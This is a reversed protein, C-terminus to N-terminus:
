SGRGAARRQRAPGGPQVFGVPSQGYSREDSGEDLRARPDRGGPAVPLRRVWFILDLEGLPVSLRTQYLLTGKLESASSLYSKAGVGGYTALIDGRYAAILDSTRALVTQRFAADIVGDLFPRAKILAGQIYRQGDRWVKRFLVFHGDELLSIEFPDIESEFTRIRVESRFALSALDSRIRTAVKRAYAADEVLPNSSSLDLGIIIRRPAGEDIPGPKARQVGSTSKTATMEEAEGGNMAVTMGDGQMLQSIKKDGELLFFAAIGAILLATLFKNM